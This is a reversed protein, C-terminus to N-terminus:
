INSIDIGRNYQTYLIQKTNLIFFGEIEQPNKNLNNIKHTLSVVQM